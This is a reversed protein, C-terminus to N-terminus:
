GARMLFPEFARQAFRWGESTRRYRDRYVGVTAPGVSASTSAGAAKVFASVYATGSAEDESLVDIRINSVCHLTANDGGGAM